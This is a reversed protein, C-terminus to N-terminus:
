PTPIESPAPQQMQSGFLFQKVAKLSSLKTNITNIIKNLNECWTVDM